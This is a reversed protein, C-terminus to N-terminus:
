LHHIYTKLEHKIVHSAEQSLGSSESDEWGDKGKVRDMQKWEGKKQKEDNM